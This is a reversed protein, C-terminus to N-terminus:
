RIFTGDNTYFKKMGASEIWMGAQGDVVDCEIQKTATFGHMHINVTLDHTTYTTDNVVVQNDVCGGFNAKGNIDVTMTETNVAIGSPTTETTTCGIASVAVLVFLITTVLTKM